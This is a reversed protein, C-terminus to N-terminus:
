LKFTSTLVSPKSVGWMEMFRSILLRANSGDNHALIGRSDNFHYRRVYESEDAVAFPETIRQLIKPTQFIFMNHNFQNLLTMLRPCYQSMPRADHALLHFRNNPNALLFNRLVELRAASNFGINTFDKEFIILNQKAQGCLADLALVYEATSNLIVHKLENNKLGLGKKSQCNSLLVM